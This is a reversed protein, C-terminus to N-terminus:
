VNQVAPKRETHQSLLDIHQSLLGVYQFSPKKTLVVRSIKGPSVVSINKLDAKGSDGDGRMRKKM